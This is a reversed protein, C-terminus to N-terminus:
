VQNVGLPLNETRSHIKISRCMIKYLCSEVFVGIQFYGHCVIFCGASIEGKDFPNSTSTNGKNGDNGEHRKLYNQLTSRSSFVWDLTM